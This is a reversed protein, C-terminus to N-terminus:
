KKGGREFDGVRNNMNFVNVNGNNSELNLERYGEIIEMLQKAEEDDDKKVGKMSDIIQSNTLIRSYPNLLETFNAYDFDSVPAEPQTSPIIPFSMTSTNSTQGGPKTDSMYMMYSGGNPAKMVEPAPPKSTEPLLLEGNQAMELIMAGEATGELEKPVAKQVEAREHEPRLKESLSGDLEYAWTKSNENESFIGLVHKYVGYDVINENIRGIVKAREELIQKIAARQREVASLLNVDQANFAKEYQEMLEQESTGFMDSKLLEKIRDATLIQGEETDNQVEYIIVQQKILEKEIRERMKRLKEKQEADLRAINMGEEFRDNTGKFKERVKFIYDDNEDQELYEGLGKGETATALLLLRGLFNTGKYIPMKGDTLISHMRKAVWEILGSGGTLILGISNLHKYGTLDALNYILSEITGMGDQQKILSRISEEDDKNNSLKKEAQEQRDQIWKEFKEKVKISPNIIYKLLIDRLKVWAKGLIFGIIFAGGPSAFFFKLMNRAWKNNFFKNLTKLPHKISEWVKGITKKFPGFVFNFAGKLMGTFRSFLGGYKNFISTLRKIYNKNLKEIKIDIDITKGTIKEVVDVLMKKFKKHIVPIIMVDIKNDILSSLNGVINQDISHAFTELNNTNDDLQKKDFFGISLKGLTHSITKVSTKFENNNKIQNWTDKASYHVYSQAGSKSIKQEFKDIVKDIEGSQISQGQKSDDSQARNKSIFQGVIEDLKQYVEKEDIVPLNNESKIQELVKKINENILNNLKVRVQETTEKVDSEEIKIYEDLASSILKMLDQFEERDLLTQNYDNDDVTKRLDEELLNFIAEMVGKISDNKVGSDNWFQDFKGKLTLAVKYQNRYRNNITAM